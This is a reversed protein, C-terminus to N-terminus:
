QIQIQITGINKDEYYKASLPETPQNPNPIFGVPELPNSQADTPIKKDGNTDIVAAFWINNWKPVPYLSFPYSQASGSYPGLEKWTQLKEFTPYWVTSNAPMSSAQLGEFWGVYVTGQPLGAAVQVTGTITVFPSFFAPIQDLIIDRDFQKLQPKPGDASEPSNADPYVAAAEVIYRNSVVTLGKDSNSDIVGAMWYMGKPVNTFTFSYSRLTEGANYTGIKQFSQSGAPFNAWPFPSTPTTIKAPDFDIFGVYVDGSDPMPATVTLNGKVTITATPSEKSIL